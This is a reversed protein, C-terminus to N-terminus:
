SVQRVGDLLKRVGDLLKKVCDSVWRVGGLVESVMQCRGSMM